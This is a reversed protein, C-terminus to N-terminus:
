GKGGSIEESPPASIISAMGCRRGDINGLSVIQESIIRIRPFEAMETGERLIYGRFVYCIDQFKSAQDIDKRLPVAQEFTQRVPAHIPKQEPFRLCVLRGNGLLQIRIGIRYDPNCGLGSKDEIVPGAPFYNLEM